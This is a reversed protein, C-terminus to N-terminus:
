SLEGKYNVMYYYHKSTMTRISFHVLIDSSSSTYLHRTRDGSDCLKVNKKEKGDEIVLSVPCGEAQEERVYGQAVAFSWPRNFDYLTLNVKQGPLVKIRWPCGASGYGTEETIM